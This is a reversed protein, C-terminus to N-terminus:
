KKIEERKKEDIDDQTVTELFSLLTVIEKTKFHKSMNNIARKTIKKYKEIKM